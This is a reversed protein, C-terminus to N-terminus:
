TLGVSSRTACIEADVTSLLSAPYWDAPSRVLLPTRRRDVWIPSTAINVSTRNGAGGAAARQGESCEGVDVRRMRHPDAGAHRRDM